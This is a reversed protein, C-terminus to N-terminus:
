RGAGSPVRIRIWLGDAWIVMTRTGQADSSVMVPEGRVEVEVGALTGSYRVPLDGPPEPLDPPAPPAPPAALLTAGRPEREEPVVTVTEETGNRKAVTVQVGVGPKIATFARGGADTAIAAGDIALIRDGIQVGARDAAGGADVATVEPPRSFFWVEGGSMSDARTGCESCTFGIGLRPRPPMARVLGQPPLPPRAVPGVRRPAEAPAPAPSLGSTRIRPTVVRSPVAPPAPVSPPPPPVPADWANGCAAMTHVVADALRGGRRYRVKVDADPPLNAIYAGGEATTILLGDLAVIVDGEQLIGDAPGGALVGTIWPEVSFSWAMEERNEDLTLTCDGRCDWGTLGLSGVMRGTCAQVREGTATGAPTKQCAARAPVLLAAAGIAAVRAWRTTMRTTTRM